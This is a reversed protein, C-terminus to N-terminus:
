ILLVIALQAKVWSVTDMMGDSSGPPIGKVCGPATSLFDGVYAPSLDQYTRRTNSALRMGAVPLIKKNEKTMSDVPRSQPSVGKQTETMPKKGFAAVGM